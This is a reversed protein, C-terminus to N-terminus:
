GAVAGDTASARAFALAEQRQVFTLRRAARAKNLTEIENLTKRLHRKAIEVDSDNAFQAL